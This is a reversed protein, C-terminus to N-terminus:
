RVQGFLLDQHHTIQPSCFLSSILLGFRKFMSHTFILTLSVVPWYINIKIGPDTPSYAGPFAVKPSPNGSGGGSVTVQGCSGYFQAGNTQSAAHLGIHEVKILYDGNPVSKPITFQVSTAGAEMDSPHAFILLSSDLLVM